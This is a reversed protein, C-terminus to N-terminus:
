SFGLSEFLGRARKVRMVTEQREFDALRVRADRGANQRHPEAVLAARLGHADAQKTSPKAPQALWPSSPEEDDPKESSFLATGMPMAASPRAM